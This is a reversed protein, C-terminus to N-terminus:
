MISCFKNPYNPFHVKRNAGYIYFTGTQEDVRYTVEIVPLAEITQQQRRIVKSPFQKSAATQSFQVIEGDVFQGEM